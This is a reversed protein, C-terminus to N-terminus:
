RGTFEAPSAAPAKKALGTAGQQGDVVAVRDYRKWKLRAWLRACLVMAFTFIILLCKLFDVNDIAAACAKTSQAPVAM